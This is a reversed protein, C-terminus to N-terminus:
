DLIETEEPPVFKIENKLNFQDRCTFNYGFTKSPQPEPSYYNNKKNSLLIEVHHSYESKVCFPNLSSLWYFTFKSPFEAQLWM